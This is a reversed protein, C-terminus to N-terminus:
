QPREVDGHGAPPSLYEKTLAADGAAGNGPSDHDGTTGGIDLPGGSHVPGSRGQAHRKGGPSSKAVEHRLIQPLPIGVKVAAIWWRFSHTILTLNGISGCKWTVMDTM